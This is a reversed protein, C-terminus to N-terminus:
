DEHAGGKPEPRRRLLARDENSFAFEVNLETVAYEIVRDILEAYARVGLTETSIQIRRPTAKKQGPLRQMEFRAGNTGLFLRRFFEKWTDVTFRQGAVRAQESIQGLLPGHLFRRQKISIPELARSVTVLVNEGNALLAKAHAYGRTVAAHAEEPSFVVARFEDETVGV